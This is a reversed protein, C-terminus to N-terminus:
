LNPLHEIEELLQFAVAALIIAADQIEQKTAKKSEMYSLNLVELGIIGILVKFDRFPLKKQEHLQHLIATLVSHNITGIEENHSM